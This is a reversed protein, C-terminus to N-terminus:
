ERSIPKLGVKRSTMWRMLDARYSDLRDDSKMREVTEIALQKGRVFEGSEYLARALLSASWLARAPDVELARARTLPDLALAPQGRLLYAAGIARLHDPSSKNFVREFMAEAAAAAELAGVANGRGLQIQAEAGLTEAILYHDAGYTRRLIALARQNVEQAEPYAATTELASALASLHSAVRLDAHDLLRDDLAVVKRLTAVAKEGLGQEDYLLGLAYSADAVEASDTGFVRERISLARELTYEADDYHGDAREVEGLLVLTTAVKPHDDGYVARQVSLARAGLDHAHALQGRLRAIFALQWLPEVLRLDNGGFRRELGAVVREFTQSAEDYNGQQRAVAGMAVQLEVAPDDRQAGMRELVATARATLAPVADFRGRQRAVDVLGVLAEVTSRDDRGAEAAWLADGFGQEASTLDDTADHLRALELDAAAELPRYGLAKASAVVERGAVLGDRLAGTAHLAKVAALERWVMDVRPRLGPSPLPIQTTLAALDACGALDPLERVAHTAHTAISVDALQLRDVLARLEYMREDLCATRRELQAESQVGIVRTARCAEGQMAAWRTAYADLEHILDTRAVDAFAVGLRRFALDVSNRRSRDWTGELRSEAGACPRPQEALHHGVLAATGVIVVSAGVAVARPWRRRASMELAALLADMSAFRREPELSLGRRLVHEIRTPVASEAAPPRIENRLVASALAAATDGAFPRQRYLGFWLSVCFAFQDSRADANDGRHQEPAMYLPTGAVAGTNTLTVSENSAEHVRGTGALSRVLGFDAVRLRGDHDLLVNEPKFDRHVMGAAHAAALGRGALVFRRLVERWPRPEDLWRALTGGGVHEMAIFVHGDDIGVDHVIVVNPHTLRALAQAERRLREALALYTTSESPITRLVKLAVDRELDPDRAAYVVGMGGTGELRTVIYRGVRKGPGFLGETETSPMASHPTQTNEGAALTSVIRRCAVCTALHAMAQGRLSEDARDEVLLVLTEIELCGDLVM